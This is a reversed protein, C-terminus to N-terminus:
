TNDRNMSGPLPEQEGHKAEPIAEEHSGAVPQSIAWTDHKPAEYPVDKFEAQSTILDIVKKEVIQNRLSDMLGRKELRARVRRPSEDSQSAISMIELEFDAPEAEIKEEEAIRELIFHEKLSRATYDLTNRSIENAHARIVDDAFGNSRLELIARDFERKAQRKLLDNPLQWTASETLLGSIQSRIQRQQQYNLQRELEEKVAHRLEDEDAFGGIDDLFKQTLEPLVRKKVAKIEIECDLEKGRLSEDSANDSVKVKGVATEGAKKGIVLKDFGELIADEFSLKPKVQLAQEHMHSVLEEGDRFNLCAVIIGDAEAPEDSDETHAYRAMLHSLQSSVEDDSFEHTPRDLKMGKWRPLDFEPRVEIKFEFIMPGEDPLKIADVDFDPESIATFEHEDNVQAMSDMLLKGKVQDSVTEKFRQEVLKRPARGPRFGPLEAKPVLEDYAEKYYRDIDERPVTVAVKRECASPKEVKIDLTLKAREEKEPEQTATAGELTDDDAM